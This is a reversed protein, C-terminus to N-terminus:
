NGQPAARAFVGSQVDEWLDLLWQSDEARVAYTRSAKDRRSAVTVLSRVGPWPSPQQLATVALQLEATDLGAFALLQECRARDDMGPLLWRGAMAALTRGAGDPQSRKEAPLRDHDITPLSHM